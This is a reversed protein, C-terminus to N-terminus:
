RKTQLKKEEGKIVRREEHLEDRPVTGRESQSIGASKTERRRGKEDMAHEDKKHFPNRKMAKTKTASGSGGGEAQEMFLGCVGEGFASKKIKRTESFKEEGRQFGRGGVGPSVHLNL